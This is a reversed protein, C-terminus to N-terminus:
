AKSINSALHRRVTALDQGVSDRYCSLVQLQSLLRQLRVTDSIFSILNEQDAGLGAEIDGSENTFQVREQVGVDGGTGIAGLLCAPLM